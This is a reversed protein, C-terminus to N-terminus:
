VPKTGTMTSREGNPLFAPAESVAVGGPVRPVATFLVYVNRFSSAAQNGLNSSFFCEM